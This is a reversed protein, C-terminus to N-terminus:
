LTKPSAPANASTAASISKTFKLSPGLTTVVKKEALKGEAHKALVVDTEIAFVVIECAVM